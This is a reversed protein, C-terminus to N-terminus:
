GLFAVPTDTGPHNKRRVPRSLTRTAARVFKYVRRLRCSNLDALADHFVRLLLFLVVGIFVQLVLIETRHKRPEAISGAMSMMIVM